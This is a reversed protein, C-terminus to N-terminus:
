PFHERHRAPVLPCITEKYPRSRVRRAQATWSHVQRCVSHYVPLPECSPQQVHVLVGGERLHWPRSLSSRRAVAEYWQFAYPYQKLQDALEQTVSRAIVFKLQYDEKRIRKRLKDDAEYTATFRANERTVTERAKLLDEDTRFVSSTNESLERLKPKVDDSIWTDGTLLGEIDNSGAYLELDTEWQAFNSGDRQLKTLGVGDHLSM